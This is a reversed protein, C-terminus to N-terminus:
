HRITQGAAQALSHCLNAITLVHDERCRCPDELCTCIHEYIGKFVPWYRGNPLRSRKPLVALAVRNWLEFQVHMAAEFGLPEGFGFREKLEAVLVRLHPFQPETTPSLAFETLERCADEALTKMVPM